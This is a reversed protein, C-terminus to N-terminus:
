KGAAAYQRLPTSGYRGPQGHQGPEGYQGPQGSQNPQAYPNPQGSQGPQGYPNPQGYQGPQQGFPGPQQGYQGPQGLEQGQWGFQAQRAALAQKHNRSKIRSGWVILLVGIAITILRGIVVGLLELGGGPYPGQNASAAATLLLVAIGIVIQPTGTKRKAPTPPQQPPQEAPQHPPQQGPWSMAVLSRRASDDGIGHGRARASGFPCGESTRDDHSVHVLGCWGVM